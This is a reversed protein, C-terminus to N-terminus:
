IENKEELEEFKSTIKTTLGLPQLINTLQEYSQNVKSRVEDL